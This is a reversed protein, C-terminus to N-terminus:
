SAEYVSSSANLLHHVAASLVQTSQVESESLKAELADCLAMLQNVKEVIRKQEALPPLPFIIKALSRGTLHPIGAGTFYTQLVGTADYVKLCYSFFNGDLHHGPRVRHLAKQFMVRDIEGNWVASRGIGHGGECILVDGTRVSFEHLEHDAFPMEKVSTLDFRFWHVNTNRLYAFPKGKNKASDLMKGLRTAAIQEVKVWQWCRPIEFLGQAKDDIELTITPEDNPDQPVLKGQVALQLITQRLQPITTPTDFLRDFQDRVRNVHKPFEATSSTSVLRDLTAGVLRSRAERRAAQRSELEDCFGLLQDVKEVIRKQTNPSPPAFTIKHIDKAAIHPVGNSKGPDISGVFAPSNLWLFFYEPVVRDDKFQPRGVRQLLLAPLDAKTLRAVKLGTSILPRDLSLVIDGESLEFRTFDKAREESIFAIEDWNLEDHGINVNRVLRVGNSGFWESKFAYGNQVTLFDEVRTERRSPEDNEDHEVLRGQVALQLIMERLKAVGNPAEAFTAFHKCFTEANM